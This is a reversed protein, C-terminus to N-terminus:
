GFRQGLYHAAQRRWWRPEHTVHKGWLECRRSIAKAALVRGFQVTARVNTGEYAGQGCVLDLHVGRRVRELEDGDLHPVFAMPNNYHLDTNTYGDTLWAADYRGSLCLAYHFTEPHKLALTASYLAGLSAGALAIPIDPTRCDERIMPVLEDLVYREFARHRDLRVEPHADWDAWSESVNSETCYLKIRGEDISGRLADVLGGEHWEHATGAASPLVLVPMGWHGFCWLHMPRDMAASDIRELRM